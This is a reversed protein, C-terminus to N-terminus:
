EIQISVNIVDLDTDWEEKDELGLELTVAQQTAFNRLILFNFIHNMIPMVKDSELINNVAGSNISSVYNKLIDEKNDFDGNIRIAKKFETKLLSIKESELATADVYTYVNTYESDALYDSLVKKMVAIKETYTAKELEQESFYISVHHDDAKFDPNKFDRIENRFNNKELFNFQIGIWQRNM